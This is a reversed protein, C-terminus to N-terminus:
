GRQDGEPESVREDERTERREAEPEGDGPESGAHEDTGRPISRGSSPEKGKDEREHRRDRM